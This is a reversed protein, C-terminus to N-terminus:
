EPKVDVVEYSAAGVQAFEPGALATVTWRGSGVADDPVTLQMCGFGGWVGQRSTVDDGMPDTVVLRYDEGDTRGGACDCRRRWSPRHPSSPSMTPASAAATKSHKM